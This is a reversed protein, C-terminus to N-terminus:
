IAPEQVESTLDLDDAPLLGMKQYIPRMAARVKPLEFTFWFSGAVCFSGTLIVTHPAGVRHALAGALLSGFPATGFFAMTYYGMVRARKDETVLSQVITNSVSAGQMLGFGVFVMLVLSLWLTHSLGFLILAGGLLAAAVQLMRTLGVVSKRVALSLGSVLAGIGSAATLWGLTYAGGHLVEGAFIPLLVAYSYGMLSLLAFLLLITRIPRFTRVYDWGERMQEFTSTRSRRINLPKIRMLLLSAIVAFYSVGDVLFCWGEGFAGIVLGAIAPGILRAGNAMSSNIAIANSLDNGGEVMQVLFSQRGPMDFANIVGQLATLAIIEWLTIVHTLALAALALSQVAAAAQTWVLLKRRNLREIWVGAFPGLAFSVIQGAFSVVGLLLASHTLRYVLWGTAVRTMWTGIVSISQGFFFLKFNRHRLARWAHSISGLFSAEQADSSTAPKSAFQTLEASDTAKNIVKSTL